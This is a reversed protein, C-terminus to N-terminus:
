IFALLVGGWGWGYNRNGFIEGFMSFGPTKEPAFEWKQTDSLQIFDVPM